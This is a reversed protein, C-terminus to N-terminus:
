PSVETVGPSAILFNVPNLGVVFSTLITTFDTNRLVTSLGAATAQRIVSPSNSDHGYISYQSSSKDYHGATVGSLGDILIGDTLTTIPTYSGALTTSTFAQTRGGRSVLLVYGSPDPFVDPDTALIGVTDSASTITIAVRDGADQIFARGRSGSETASRIYKTCPYGSTCGGPDGTM